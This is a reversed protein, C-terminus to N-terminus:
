EPLVGNTANMAREIRHIHHVHGAKAQQKVSNGLMASWGVMSCVHHSDSQSRTITTHLSCPRMLRQPHSTQDDGHHPPAVTACSQLHRTVPPAPKCQLWSAARTIRACQAAADCTTRVAQSQGETRITVMIAHHWLAQCMHDLNPICLKRQSLNATTAVQACEPEFRGNCDPQTSHRNHRTKRIVPMDGDHQCHHGM